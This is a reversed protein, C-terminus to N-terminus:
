TYQIYRDANLASCDSARIRREATFLYGINTVM